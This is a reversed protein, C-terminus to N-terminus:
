RQSQMRGESRRARAGGDSCREEDRATQRRVRPLRAAREENEGQGDRRETGWALARDFMDKISQGKFTQNMIATPGVKAGATSMRDRERQQGSPGIRLDCRAQTRLGRENNVPTRHPIVAAWRRGDM